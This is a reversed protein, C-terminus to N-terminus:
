YSELFTYSCLVIRYSTVDIFYIFLWCWWLTGFDMKVQYSICWYVTADHSVKFLKQMSVDDSHFSVFGRQDEQVYYCMKLSCPVILLLIICNDLFIRLMHECDVILPACPCGAHVPRVPSPSIFSVSVPLNRHWYCQHVSSAKICKFFSHHYVWNLSLRLQDIATM